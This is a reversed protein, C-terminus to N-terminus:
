IRAVQELIAVPMTPVRRRIDGRAWQTLTQQLYRVGEELAFTRDAEERSRDVARQELIAIEEARDARRIAQDTGRVWLYAVVALILQLAIPRVLLFNDPRRHEFCCHTGLSTPMTRSSCSDAVILVSNVVAVFFSSLRPLVTAAVVVSVVYLDFNPLEGM